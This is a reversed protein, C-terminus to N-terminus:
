YVNYNADYVYSGGRRRLKGQMAEGIKRLEDEKRIAAYWAEDSEGPKRFRTLAFDIMVPDLFGSDGTRVLFNRPSVDENLLGCKMISEVISVARVCVPNWQSKPCHDALDRLAFGDIHELLLGPVDFFRQLAPHTASHTRLTVTGYLQPITKGQFKKLANYAVKEAECLEECVGFLFTEYQGPSWTDGYDSEESDLWDMFRAAEGKRVSDIYLEKRQDSWVPVAYEQRQETSFRHDYLKLVLPNDKGQVRVKMVPTMTVPEFCHLIEATITDDARHLPLYSENLKLSLHEGAEYPTISQRIKAM